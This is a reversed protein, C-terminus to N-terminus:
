RYTGFRTQRLVVTVCMGALATLTGTFDLFLTQGGVLRRVSQAAIGSARTKSVPTNATSKLNFTSSLVSTGAGPATGSGAKKLDLTVAGGDSGAVTHAEIAEVVEYEAGAEVTFLGADVMLATAPNIAQTFTVIRPAKNM